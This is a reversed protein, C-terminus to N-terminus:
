SRGGETTPSNVGSQKQADPEPPTAEHLWSRRNRVRITIADVGVALILVLGVAIPQWFPAVGFLNLANVILETLLVGLMAGFVTGSGGSLSAGGIVVAAIVQLELGEGASVSATAFRAAEIVGGLSALTATLLYCGIKVRDVPIGTLRAAKENGGVYYTLRLLRSRRLLFDGAVALVLMILIPMQVSFVVTQGLKTFSSPLGTVGFGGGALLVLGRAVSLTGLTQILPNIGIKAVFVGNVAGILLGVSIAAAVTLPVPVGALALSGAVVGGLALVSGVSLDFGGSVLLVTMGVAVIAKISAGLLVSLLNGATLFDPTAIFMGVSFVVIFSLLAAERQETLLRLFRRFRGGAREQEPRGAAAAEIGTGASDAEAARQGGRLRM